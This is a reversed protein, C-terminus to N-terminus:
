QKDNISIHPWTHSNYEGSPCPFLHFPFPRRNFSNSISFCITLILLCVLFSFIPPPFFPFCFFFLPRNGLSDTQFTPAAAAWRRGEKDTFLGVVVLVCYFLFLLFCDAPQSAFAAGLILCCYSFRCGLNRTGIVVVFSRRKRKTKERRMTKGVRTGGGVMRRGCLVVGVGLYESLIRRHRTRRHWRCITFRAILSPLDVCVDRKEGKKDM